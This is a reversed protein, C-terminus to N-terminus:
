EKRVKRGKGVRRKGQRSRWKWAKGVGGKDQKPLVERAKVQRGKEKRSQGQRGRM